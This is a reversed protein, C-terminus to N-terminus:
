VFFALISRYTGYSGLLVGVVMLVANVVVQTTPYSLNRSKRQKTLARIYMLPPFIFMMCSGFLAGIVSGVKGIDTVRSTILGFALILLATVEKIGWGLKNLAPTKKFLDIFWNKASILILPYSAVVSAGFALSAVTGLPDKPSFSALATVATHRGFLSIALASTGMYVLATTLYAAGAM